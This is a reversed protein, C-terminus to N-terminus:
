DPRLAAVLRRDVRVLPTGPASIWAAGEGVAVPRPAVYIEAVATRTEPDIRTVVGKRDTTAWLSHTTFTFAGHPQVVPLPM